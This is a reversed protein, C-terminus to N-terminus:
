VKYKGNYKLFGGVVTKTVYGLQSMKNCIIMSMAGRDCYIVYVKTKDALINRCSGYKDRDTENATEGGNYYYCLCDNIINYPINIANKIHSINYESEDRIDLLCAFPNNVYYDVKRVSIIECSM